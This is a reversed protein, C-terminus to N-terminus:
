IWGRRAAEAGMAFRGPADLRESLAAIMRRVTRVSVGLTRAASEDKAGRALVRLLEIEEPSPAGGREECAVLEEADAWLEEFLAQLGSVIGPTHVVVAGRSLDSPDLAVVAAEADHVQLRT